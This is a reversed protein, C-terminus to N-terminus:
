IIHDKGSYRNTVICMVTELDTCSLLVATCLMLSHKILMLTTSLLNMTQGAQYIVFQKVNIEFHCVVNLLIYTMCIGVNNIIEERYARVM